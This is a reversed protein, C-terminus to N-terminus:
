AHALKDEIQARHHQCVKAKDRSHFAVERRKLLLAPDFSFKHHRTTLAAEFTVAFHKHKSTHLLQKVIRPLLASGGDLNSQLKALITDKSDHFVITPAIAGALERQFGNTLNTQTGQLLTNGKDISFNMNSARCPM